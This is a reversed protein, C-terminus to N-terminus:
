SREGGLPDLADFVSRTTLRPNIFGTDGPRSVIYLIRLPLVVGREVLKEPTELQRRISVTYGGEKTQSFLLRLENM